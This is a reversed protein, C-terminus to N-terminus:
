KKTKVNLTENYYDYGGRVLDALGNNAARERAQTTALKNLLAAEVKEMESIQDHLDNRHSMKEQMKEGYNSLLDFDRRM